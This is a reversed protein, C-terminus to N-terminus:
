SGAHISFTLMEGSPIVAANPMTWLNAGPRYDRDLLFVKTIQDVRCEGALPMKRDAGPAVVCSLGIEGIQEPRTGPPLEVTTRIWESRSIAYDVRGIDGSRWVGDGRLRVNVSLGADHNAVKAEVYLYNRPDSIKEGDVTGFSRLKGERALEESAIRYTIPEGDMVHERSHATLDVLVPAIQYRIAPTGAPPAVMNNNTVPMLLPHSGELPGSYVIDKHDKGQIIARNTKLNVRYIYEIDTTRGWRAMLARTSTGGDENTFIVTYQLIPDSGERLQEAYVLMPADTFKGVTNERAFLVPARALAPDDVGTRIEVGAVLLETGQASYTRNQEISLRHAGAALRGLFVNYTHPTEGSYVMVNVAPLDDVHIDAMAAERGTQGWNAGPASMRIQAVAEGARAATFPQAIKQGWAPSFTLVLMALKAVASLLRETRAPKPVIADVKVADPTDALDGPWGSVIIVRVAPDQGRFERVLEIGDGVRELRLDMVLLEPAIRVFERRAEEATRASAVAHGAHELILRRMELQDPDDDVVLIRSM